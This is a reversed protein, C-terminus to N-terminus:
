WIQAFADRLGASTADEVTLIQSEAGIQVTRYPRATRVFQKISWGTRREVYHPVALPAFVVALHAEISERKHHYIPRARLYHNSM